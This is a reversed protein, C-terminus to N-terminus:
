RPDPEAPRLANASRRKAAAALRETLDLPLPELKPPGRRKVIDIRLRDAGGARLALRLPSASPRSAVASEQVVFAAGLLSAELAPLLESDHELRM